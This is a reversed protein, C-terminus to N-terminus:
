WSYTYQAKLMLIQGRLIQLDNAPLSAGQESDLLLEIQQIIQAQLDLRWKLELVWARMM